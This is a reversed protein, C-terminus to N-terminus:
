QPRRGVVLAIQDDQLRVDDNYSVKIGAKAFVAKLAQANRNKEPDTGRKVAIKVGVELPSNYADFPLVAAAWQGESFAWMVSYAFSVADPAGPMPFIPFPAKKEEATIASVLREKEVPTLQWPNRSAALLEAVQKKLQELQKGAEDPTAGQLRDKYLDLRERLTSITSSSLLTSFGFGLAASGLM